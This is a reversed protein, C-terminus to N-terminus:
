FSQGERFCEVNQQRPFVTRSSLKAICQYYNDLSVIDLSKVRKFFTKRPCNLSCILRQLTGIETLARSLFYAGGGGGYFFSSSSSFKSKNARFESNCYGKKPLPSPPPSPLSFCCIRVKQYMISSSLLTLMQCKLRYKPLLKSCAGSLIM